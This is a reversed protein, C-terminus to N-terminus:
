TAIWRVWEGKSDHPTFTEILQLEMLEILSDDIADSNLSGNRRSKGWNKLSSIPLEGDKSNIYRAVDDLPEPLNDFSNQTVPVERIVTPEVANLKFSDELRELPSRPMKPMPLGYAKAVDEVKRPTLAPSALM